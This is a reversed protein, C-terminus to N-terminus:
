LGKFAEVLGLLAEIAPCSRPVIPRICGKYPVSPRILAKYAKNYGAPPSPGGPYLLLQGAMNHTRKPRALGKFPM